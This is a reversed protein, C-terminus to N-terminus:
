ISKSVNKSFDKVKNYVKELVEVDAKNHDLIYGLAKSNGTLATIWYYGDIHTKGEIGLLRAADEMRNRHICLRNKIMYYCDKHNHSGFKPFEIGWYLARSRIFPLDFKTGYYTIILNFKGINSICERVLNKDLTGNNLEDKNISRGLIEKKNAEKICYSLMIGFDAKLNSSEIDLYGIKLNSEYESIYCGPHEAYLHGHKCRRTFLIALDEKKMNMPNFKDTEM